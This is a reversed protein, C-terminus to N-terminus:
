VDHVVLGWVVADDGYDFCFLRSHEFNVKLRSPSFTGGVDYAFLCDFVDHFSDM